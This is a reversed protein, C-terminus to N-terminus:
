ARVCYGPVASSAWAWLHPHHLLSFNVGFNFGLAQPINIFFVGM